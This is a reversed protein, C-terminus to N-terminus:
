KQKGKTTEIIAKDYPRINFLDVPVAAGGAMQEKVFAKLTGPHVTEKLEIDDHTEAVRRAFAEAEEHAGRDFRALVETKILGGFGNTILWQLAGARTKGTISADVDEKVTIKEGTRLAFESVGLERMLDPLDERETRLMDEKANRLEETLRDVERQQRVLLEGLKVARQFDDSM